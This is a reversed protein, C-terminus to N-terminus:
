HADDSDADLCDWMTGHWNSVVGNDGCSPCEWVIDMREDLTIAARILGPCRKRGPRRRCRVTSGSAAQCPDYTVAVVIATFHEALRRAPSSSAAIAGHEDLVHTIDIIWTDPM